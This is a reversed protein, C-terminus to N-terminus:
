PSSTSYRVKYKAILEDVAASRQQSGVEDKWDQIVVNRIEALEAPKAASVSDIWVARWGDKAQVALWRSTPATQLENLFADGYVQSISAIPRDKFIRLGAKTDGRVGKNLQAVFDRVAKESNESDLVAEQFSIRQPEDYKSRHAEFWRSLVAEDVDPLRVNADIVSLAKFIIRERISSDGKDVQMALGERYLVENQLWVKRLAALEEANPDRGRSGKWIEIADKDVSADVVILHPDATRGVLYHDIGFLLAGLVAFHLLPERLWAPLTSANM